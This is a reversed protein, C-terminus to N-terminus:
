DVMKKNFGLPLTTEITSTEIQSIVTDLPNGFLDKVQEPDVVDIFDPSGVQSFTM